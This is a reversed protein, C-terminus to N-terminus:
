FEIRLRDRMIEIREFRQLYQMGLLSAHLDGENVLASVRRASHQELVVTDLLVHATRTVGNATRAMGMFSLDRIDYGLKVADQQRLVIDTAGTDVIFNIPHAEGNPGTISLTLHFQGDLSRRLDIGGEVQTQSAFMTSQVSQWLGIGAAVGVILLGWLVLHRLMTAIRGKHAVIAYSGLALALIVLYTLREWQTDTIAELGAM